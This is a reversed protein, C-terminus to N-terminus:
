TGFLHSIASLEDVSSSVSQVQVSVAQTGIWKSSTKLIERNLSFDELKQVFFGYGGAKSTKLNVTRCLIQMTSIM